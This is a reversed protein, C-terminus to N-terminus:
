KLAGARACVWVDVKMVGAQKLVRALENVTSGTTVVDDVLAIHQWNLKKKVQFANNVNKLRQKLPLTSQQKTNFQRSCAKYDIPIGLQKATIKAIELSQNFGRQRYRHRHLPVAILCDPLPSFQKLHESLLTGLLRSIQYRRQFKLQLLLYRMATQYVYPAYVKDFYPPSHQCRGCIVPNQEPEDFVQGCCQCCYQNVILNQRCSFCLDQSKEGRNGCLLCVAPFLYNPIIENWNNAM